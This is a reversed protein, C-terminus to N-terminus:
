VGEKSDAPIPGFVRGHEWGLDKLIEWWAEDVHWVMGDAGDFRGPGTPRDRWAPLSAARREQIERVLLPIYQRATKDQRGSPVGLYTAMLENLKADSLDAM